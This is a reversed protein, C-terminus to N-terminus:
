KKGHASPKSKVPAYLSLFNMVDKWTKEPDKPWVLTRSGHLIGPGTLYVKNESACAEYLPTSSERENMPSVIMVPITLRKVAKTVIGPHGRFYEAPSFALAAALDKRDPAVLLTLSSSYSSGWLVKKGTFGHSSAWDLGAELDQRASLYDQKLGAKKARRATENEVNSAVRNGGKGSRQDIALCNYGAKVLRPAIKRYEGRSSGAQHCLLIFPATKSAAVYLDGTIELGDKASFTITKPSPAKAPQAQGCAVTAFLGLWALIRLPTMSNM